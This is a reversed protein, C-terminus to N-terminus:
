SKRAKPKPNVKAADATISSPKEAKQLGLKVIPVIAAPVLNEPSNPDNGINAAGIGFEVYLAWLGEHIGQHRILAEVVEKHTFVYNAPEGM